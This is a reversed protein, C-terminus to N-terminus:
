DGAAGTLLEDLRSKQILDRQIESPQLDGNRLALAHIDFLTDDRLTGATLLASWEIATDLDGKESIKSVIYSIAPQLDAYTHQTALWDRAAAPDQEFWSLAASQIAPHDNQSIARAIRAPHDIPASPAVVGLDAPRIPTIPLDHGPDPVHASNWFAPAPRLKRPHLNPSSDTISPHDSLSTAFIHLLVTASILLLVYNGYKKSIM